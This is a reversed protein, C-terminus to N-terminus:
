NQLTHYEGAPIRVWLQASSIKETGNGSVSVEVEILAEGGHGDLRIDPAARRAWVSDLSLQKPLTSTTYQDFSRCRNSTEIGPLGPQTLRLFPEEIKICARVTLPTAPISPNGNNIGVQSDNELLIETSQGIYIKNKSLSPIFSPLAPGPSGTQPDQNLTLTLRESSNQNYGDAGEVKITVDAFTTSGPETVHNPVHLRFAKLQDPLTRLTYDHFSRCLSTVTPVVEGPLGSGWNLNPGLEVCVQISLPKAAISAASDALTFVKQNIIVDTTQGYGIASPSFSAALWNKDPGVEDPNAVSAPAVTLNFKIAKKGCSFTLTQKVQKNSAPKAVQLRWHLRKGQRKLSVKKKQGNLKALCNNQSTILYGSAAQGPKVQQNLPAGRLSAATAPSVATSSLLIALATILFSYTILKM